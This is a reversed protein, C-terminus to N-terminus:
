GEVDDLIAIKEALAVARFAHHHRSMNYKLFIGWIEKGTSCLLPIKIMVQFEPIHEWYEV